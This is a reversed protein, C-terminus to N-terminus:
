KVREWDQVKGRVIHFLPHVEPVHNFKSQLYKKYDRKKLKRRLHRWEYLVQGETEIIKRRTKERPIKTGDFHYRRKKAERLVERLYVAIAAEPRSHARFRNLQPHRRYGITKGQLVKQALLAERWLAVLGKADLYQPHITWLRM